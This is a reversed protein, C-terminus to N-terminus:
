AASTYDFGAPQALLGTDRPFVPLTGPSSIAFTLRIKLTEIQLVANIIGTFALSYDPQFAVFL